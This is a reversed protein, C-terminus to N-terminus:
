ERVERWYPHATEGIYTALAFTGTPGPYFNTYDYTEGYITRVTRQIIGNQGEATILFTNTYYCFETASENNGNWSNTLTRNYFSADANEAVALVDSTAGGLNAIYYLFSKSDANQYAYTSCMHTFPAIARQTIIYNALTDAQATTLTTRFIAKLVKADATNINVPARSDAPRTVQNNVWSYVTVYDKIMDYFERTAGPLQMIEEVYNFYQTARYNIVRQAFAQAQPTTFGCEEALYQLVTQGAYNLHLKSSEDSIMVSEITGNGLMYPFTEYSGSGWPETLADVEVTVRLALWDVLCQRNGANTRLACIRTNNSNIFYSWSTPMPMEVYRYSEAEVTTNDIEIVSGVNTWSTGGNVTYQLQILPNIGGKLGKRARLVIELKKIRTGILNYRQQFDYIQVEANVINRLTAYYFTLDTFSKGHFCARDYDSGYLIDLGDSQYGELYVAGCYGNATPDSTQYAAVRDDKVAWCGYQAGGEALWFAEANAVDYASGRLQTSTMYLFIVTIATLTIMIVFTLFLVVGRKTSLLSCLASLSNSM